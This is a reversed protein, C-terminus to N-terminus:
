DDADSSLSTAADLYEVQTRMRQAWLSSRLIPKGWAGLVVEVRGYEDLEPAGAGGVVEYAQALATNAAQLMRSAIGRDVTKGFLVEDGFRKAVYTLGTEPNTFRIQKDSALHVLEAGDDLRAMRLKSRLERDASFRAFVHTQVLAEFRARSDVGPLVLRAGEPRTPSASFLDSSTLMAADEASGGLAYPAISEFDGALIGGLLRDMARPMLGRANPQSSTGHSSPTVLPERTDLLAHLALSRTVTHGWTTVPSPGFCPPPQICGRHQVYAYRGTAADVLLSEEAPKGCNPALLSQLNGPQVECTGYRGLDPMLTARVMFDIIAAEALVSPRGVDDEDALRDFLARNAAEIQTASWEPVDEARLLQGLWGIESALDKHLRWLRQVATRTTMPPLGPARAKGCPAFYSFPYNADIGDVASTAVEFADAGADAPSGRALVDGLVDSAHPWVLAGANPADSSVQWFSHTGSSAHQQQLDQVRAHDKPPPACLQGHVVRWRALAREGADAARCRAPDFAKLRRARETYHMRQLQARDFGIKSAPLTGAGSALPQSLRPNLWRVIEADRADLRTAYVFPEALSDPYGRDRDFVETFGGYLVGLAMLDYPGLGLSEGFRESAYDMTSSQAFYNLAPRSEASQGLEDETMPDLYRPGMCATGTSRPEGACNGAGAGVGQRLATQNSRLQWYQPLYNLSDHSSAFQHPLGLAHGVQHLLMGRYAEHRLDTTIFQARMAALDEPRTREPVASQGLLRADSYQEAFYRALGQLDLTGVRIADSDLFCVGREYLHERLQHQADEVAVPDMGGFPSLMPALEDLGQPLLDVAVADTAWSSAVLTRELEPSLLPTLAQQYAATFPHDTGFTATRLGRLRIAEALRGAADPGTLQQSTGAHTPEVRARLGALGDSSFLRPTPGSVLRRQLQQASDGGTMESISTEGNALSIIDRNLEAATQVAHESLALSVGLIAGSLPDAEGSSIAGWPTQKPVVRLFHHRLDGPRVTSGRLGCAPPDYSRVPNHCAILVDQELPKAEDILWGGLRIMEQAATLGDDVNFYRELCATRDGDGTRRCELERAKALAHRLLQNWSSLVLETDGQTLLTDRGQPSAFEPDDSEYADTFQAPVSQDLHLAIPEVARDRLPLTCARAPSCASGQHLLISEVEGDRGILSSTLLGCQPHAESAGTPSCGVTCAKAGGADPIRVCSSPEAGPCEADSSCRGSLVLSQRWIRHRALQRALPTPSGSQSTTHADFAARQHSLAGALAFPHLDDDVHDLTSTPTAQDARWFATRVSAQETDCRGASAGAFLALKLCTSLPERALPSMEPEVWYVHTVDFYGQDTEFHIADPDQAATASWDVQIAGIEGFMAGPFVGTLVAPDALNHSFDVRMHSRESWPRGLSDESTDFHTKVAFIAVVTPEDSSPALSAERAILRDEEIHWRVRRLPGGGGIAVVLGSESGDIVTSKTIFIPDDDPDELDGVFFHKDVAGEPVTTEFRANTCGGALGLMASLGVRRLLSVIRRRTDRGWTLAM